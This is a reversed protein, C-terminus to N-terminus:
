GPEALLEEILRHAAEARPTGPEMLGEFFGRIRGKRDALFFQPWYTAGLAKFYSLDNDVYIPGTKEFKRAYREVRVRDKEFDFEPSHVAIV